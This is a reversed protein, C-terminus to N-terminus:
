KGPKPAPKFRKGDWIYRLEKRQYPRLEGATEISVLPTYNLRATLSNDDPSLEYSVMAFPIAAITERIEKGKAGSPIDFFDAVSPEKLLKATALRVPVERSAFTLTTANDRSITDMAGADVAIKMLRNQVSDETHNMKALAEAYVKSDYAISDETALMKGVPPVEFFRVDSFPTGGPNMTSVTMCIKKGGKAPLIGLQVRMAADKEEPNGKLDAQHEATRFSIYDPTIEDVVFMAAESAVPEKTDVLRYYKSLYPFADAADSAELAIGADPLRWLMLESLYPEYAAPRQPILSQAVCGTAFAAALALLLTIRHM